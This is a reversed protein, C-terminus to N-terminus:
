KWSNTSGSEVLDGNEMRGPTVNGLATRYNKPEQKITKIERHISMIQSSTKEMKGTLMKLKQHMEKMQADKRLM